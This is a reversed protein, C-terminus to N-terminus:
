VFFPCLLFKLAYPWDYQACRVQATLESTFPAPSLWIRFNADRNSKSIQCPGFAIDAGETGIEFSSFPNVDQGTGRLIVTVGNDPIVSKLKNWSVRGDSFKNELMRVTAEWHEKDAENWDSFACQRNVEKALECEDFHWAVSGGEEIRSFPQNRNQYGLKQGIPMHFDLLVVKGINANLDFLFEFVSNPRGEVKSLHTFSFALVLGITASAFGVLGMVAVVRKKM